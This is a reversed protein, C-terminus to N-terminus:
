CVGDGAREFVFYRRGFIWNLIRSISVGQSVGGGWMSEVEVGGGRGGCWM